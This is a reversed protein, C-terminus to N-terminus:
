STYWVPNELIIRIIVAATHTSYYGMGIYTKFLTNKSALQHIKELFESESWGGKFIMSDAPLRISSPVTQGILEEMSGMKMTHLMEDADKTHPGIHRFVFPSISM